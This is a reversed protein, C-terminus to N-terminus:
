SETVTGESCSNEQLISELLLGTKMSQMSKCDKRLTKFHIFVSKTCACNLTPAHLAEATYQSNAKQLPDNSKHYCHQFREHTKGSSNVILNQRLNHM